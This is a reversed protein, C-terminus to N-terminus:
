GAVKAAGAAASALKLPGRYVGAGLEEEIRLLENYKALRESRSVSGTKIGDTGLGVALHALAADETEGSRHSAVTLYGAERAMRVVEATETVTGIQNPKVLIANAVGEQVGRKLRNPNTVFLDDGILWPGQKGMQQTLLKWGSWDDESLPDELSALHYKSQWSALTTVMQQSNLAPKNAWLRYGEQSYFETSALDLSIRCSKEYGAQRIAELLLDMAEEPGSLKLPAFGGEDGVACSDQRKQLVAKLGSFIESAHRLAERFSPAAEPLVMFEQINIGNNAHRGGNIFNLLPTPIKLLRTEFLEALHRYLPLGRAAAGAKAVALSVALTANAGLNSKNPTGDLSLLTRDIEGLNMPDKGKLAPAIKEEVAACAKLVGLGRYRKPDQDRLEVAEHAGKSAGSPVAARVVLGKSAWLEAEVTPNGRSDLIERARIKEIVVM